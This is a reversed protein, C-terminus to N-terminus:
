ATIRQHKHLKTGPCVVRYGVAEVHPMRPDGVADLVPQMAKEPTAAKVGSQRSGLNTGDDGQLALTADSERINSVQGDFLCTPEFLREASGSDFMSFKISSSGSNVVLIHM